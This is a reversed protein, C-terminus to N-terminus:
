LLLRTDERIIPGGREGHGGELVINSHGIDFPMPTLTYKSKKAIEKLRGLVVVSSFAIGIMPGLIYFLPGSADLGIEFAAIFAIVCLIYIGASALLIWLISWAVNSSSRGAPYLVATDRIHKWVKFIVLGIMAANAMATSSWTIVDLYEYTNSPVGLLELLDLVGCVLFSLVFFCPVLLVQWRRDWVIYLRYAFFADGIVTESIYLMEHARWFKRPDSVGKYKVAEFIAFITLAWHTTILAFLIMSTFVGPLLVANWSGKKWQRRFAYISACHLMFYITYTATHSLAITLIFTLNDSEENM